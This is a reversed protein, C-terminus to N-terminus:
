IIMIFVKLLLEILSTPAGAYISGLSLELDELLPKASIPM